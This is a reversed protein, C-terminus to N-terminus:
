ISAQFCRPPAAGSEALIEHLGRPLEFLSPALAPAAILCTLAIARLQPANCFRLPLPLALSADQCLAWCCRQLRVCAWDLGLQIRATAHDRERSYGATRHPPLMRLLQNKARTLACFLLGFAREQRRTWQVPSLSSGFPPLIFARLPIGPKEACGGGLCGSAPRQYLGAARTNLM